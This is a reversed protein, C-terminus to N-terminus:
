ENIRCEIPKKNRRVIIIDIPFNVVQPAAAIQKRLLREGIVDAKGKWTDKRVLSDNIASTLGIAHAPQDDFGDYENLKLVHIQVPGFKGDGLPYQIPSFIVQVLKASDNIFGFFFASSITRNGMTMYYQEQSQNEVSSSFNLLSGKREKIYESVVSDLSIGKKCLDSAIQKSQYVDMGAVAFFIDRGNGGIKKLEGAATVSGPANGIVQFNTIRADAIVTIRDREKRAIICTQSLGTSSIVCTFAALFKIYNLQLNNKQIFTIHFHRSTM